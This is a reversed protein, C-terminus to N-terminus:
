DLVFGCTLHASIFHILWYQVHMRLVKCTNREIERQRKEQEESEKERQVVCKIHKPFDEVEFYEACLNLQDTLRLM